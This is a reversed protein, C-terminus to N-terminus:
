YWLWRQLVVITIRILGYSSPPFPLNVGKEIINTPFHIYYCLRLDFTNVVIDCYPETIVVSRHSGTYWPVKGVTLTIIFKITKM